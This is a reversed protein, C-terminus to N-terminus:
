NWNKSFTLLGFVYKFM